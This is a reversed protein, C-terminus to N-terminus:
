DVQNVIMDIYFFTSLSAIVEDESNVVYYVTWTKSTGDSNLSGVSVDDSILVVPAYTEALTGDTGVAAYVVIGKMDSSPKAADVPNADVTMAMMHGLITDYRDKASAADGTATSDNEYDWKWSLKLDNLKMTEALDTNPVFEGSYTNETFCAIDSYDPLWGDLELRDGIAGLVKSMTDENENGTATTAGTLTYEVPYYYNAVTVADELTYYAMDANYDADTEVKTFSEQDDSTYLGDAALSGINDATVAKCEVMVGYNNPALFVNGGAVKVQVFTSVEPTGNISFSMGTENKTGPAIVNTDAIQTGKVSIGETGNTITNSSKQYNTGYLSGAAQLVVGWKAVRAVDGASDQTTYKAFTGSIISTTLLTLVLLASALRMMKNKRM